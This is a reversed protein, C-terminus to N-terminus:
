KVQQLLHQLSAHSVEGMRREVLEGQANYFLTTPLGRAGAHQSLASAPDLLAHRFQLSHKSLYDNVVSAPEGQNLLLFVVGPNAQEAQALVPMERRCPPCWSAWLNIVVPQGQFSALQVPEGELNTVVLGPLRQDTPGLASLGAAGGWWALVGAVGALALRRHLPVKKIVAVLAVLLMVSAGAVPNFGGDRIDLMTLPAQLYAEAYQAVFAARAALMGLVLAWWVWGEALQGQRGTRFRVVAIALVFALLLLVANAPLALPGLPITDM